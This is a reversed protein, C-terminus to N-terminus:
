VMATCCHSELSPHMGLQLSLPCFSILLQVPSLPLGVPMSSLSRAAKKRRNRGRDVQLEMFRLMEYNFSGEPSSGLSRSSAAGPQM